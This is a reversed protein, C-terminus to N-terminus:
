ADKLTEIQRKRLYGDFETEGVQLIVTSPFPPESNGGRKAGGTQNAQGTSGLEATFAQLNDRIPKQARTMSRQLGGMIEEGAPELLHRDVERPGKWDPLSSTLDSLLAKVKGIASSIGNILGDIIARGASVLWSGAGAFVGKILSPISQFATTLAGSILAKITSVFGSFMQSVGSWAQSWQGTFVGTVFTILGKIFTIVGQIAPMLSSLLESAFAAVPPLVAAFLEVLPPLIAGVLQMLPELLPILATFVSMVAEVIQMLVPMLAQVVQLLPPLIASVVSMLIPVIQQVLTTIQEFLPILLPLAQAALDAILTIIIQIIPTLQNVAPVLTAGIISAASSFASMVQELVPALMTFAGQLSTLIGSAMGGLADRLGPSVSLLGTIAGMFLGVPGTLASFGGGILPLKQLLPGLVGLLGGVIPALAAISVSFGSFGGGSSLSKIFGVIKSGIADIVGGIGNIAGSIRDAGIAQIVNGINRKISTAVNTVATGIGATADKAQQSFSAFNGVGETNLRLIAGNFDSFSVEGKKLADYLEMSNATPGLLAQAIQNLQGPMVEQLTRWSQMDVEGKGLMQTYQTMARSAEAGGKGGALLANNLALSLETAEALGGTLPALRQTTSVIDDMSTPLGRIGKDLSALSAKADEASYGLNRMVKPYNNLTDVRSIAGSMNAAVATAAVAFGAKLVGGATQAAGSITDKMRSALSTVHSMVGTAASAAAGPLSRMAQGFGSSMRVGITQMFPGVPGLHSFVAARASRMGGAVSSGFGALKHGASVAVGSIKQFGSSARVAQAASSGLAKAHGSVAAIGPGALSQALRGSARVLDSTVKVNKSGESYGESFRKRVDKLRASFGRVSAEEAGQAKALVAKADALAKTSSTLTEAATSARLRASELRAEAAIVQSSGAPYKAMAEALRAEAVKLRGASDQQALRARSVRRAALTVERTLEKAGAGSLAGATAQAFSSKTERGLLRGIKSGTGRFAREFGTSGVSGAAKVERSVASKFGKMVPFISIHGSGVEASM